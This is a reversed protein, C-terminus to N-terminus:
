RKALIEVKKSVDHFTTRRKRLTLLRVAIVMNHFQFSLSQFKPPLGAINSEAKSGEEALPTSEIKIMSSSYPPTPPKEANIM